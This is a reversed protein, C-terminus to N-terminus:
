LYSTVALSYAIENQVNLVYNDGNYEFSLKYFDDGQETKIGAPKGGNLHLDEERVTSWFHMNENYLGDTIETKQTVLTLEHTDNNTFRDIIEALQSKNWIHFGDDSKLATVDVKEFNKYTNTTDTFTDRSGIVLTDVGDGGDFVNGISVGDKTTFKIVDDGNGGLVTTDITKDNSILDIIDSGNGGDITANMITHNEFIAQDDGDGMKININKVDGEKAHITDDGIGTNLEKGEADVDGAFKVFDDNDVIRSSASDSSILGNDSSISITAEESYKGFETINAHIQTGEDSMKTGENQNGAHQGYDDIVKMRFKIVGDQVAVNKLVMDPDVATWTNGGDMSYEPHEYDEGKTAQGILDIKLNTTLSGAPANEIHFNYQMYPYSRDSESVESSHASGSDVTIYARAPTVAPQSSAAASSVFGDSPEASAGGRVNSFAPANASAQSSLNSFNASINSYHGGQAFSAAGLSVGDGGANGGAQNGGAATEELGALGEGSLISKQLSTIDATTQSNESVSQDLNISDKGILSIEKGDAKAIVVKADTSETVIKEGQYVIDGAKLERSEGTLSVAKVSGQTVNKVVGIEKSM